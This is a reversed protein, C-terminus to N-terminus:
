RMQVRSIGSKNAGQKSGGVSTGKMVQCLVILSTSL